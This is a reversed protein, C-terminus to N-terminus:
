AKGSEPLRRSSFFGKTEESVLKYADEQVQWAEQRLRKLAAAADDATIAEVKASEWRRKLHELAMLTSTFNTWASEIRFVANLTGMGGVLLSLVVIITDKAATAMFTDGRAAIFANILGFAVVSVTMARFTRRRAPIRKRYYNMLGELSLAPDSGFFSTKELESIYDQVTLQSAETPITLM